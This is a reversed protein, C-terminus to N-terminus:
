PRIMAPTNLVWASRQRDAGAEARGDASEHRVAQADRDDVLERQGAVLPRVDPREVDDFRCRELGVHHVALVGRQRAVALMEDSSQAAVHLSDGCRCPCRAARVRRPRLALSSFLMMNLEECTKTISRAGPCRCPREVARGVPPRQVCFAPRWGARSRWCLPFAGHKAECGDHRHNGGANAQGARGMCLRGDIDRGDEFQGAGAGDGAGIEAVAHQQRDVLDVGLAANEAALDFRRQEVGLAVGAGRARLDLFHEVVLGVDDETRHEGARHQDVHHQGLLGLNRLDDAAFGRRDRLLVIRVDEAGGEALLEAHRLDGVVDAVADLRLGDGHQPHVIIEALATAVGEDLFHRRAVDLDDGVDGGFGALGVEGGVHDLDLGGIGVRDEDISLSSSLARKRRSALFCPM